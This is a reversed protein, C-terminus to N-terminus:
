SVRWNRAWLQNLIEKLLNLTEELKNSKTPSQELVSKNDIYRKIIKLLKKTKYINDIHFVEM